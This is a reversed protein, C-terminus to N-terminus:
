LRVARTGQCWPQDKCYRHSDGQERRTIRGDTDSLPRSSSVTHHWIMLQGHSPVMMGVTVIFEHKLYTPCSRRLIAFLKPIFHDPLSRFHGSIREWHIEDNRLSVFNAAFVRACLSTLTPVTLIPLTRTSSASPSPDNRQASPNDSDAPAGFSPVAATRQRKKSM